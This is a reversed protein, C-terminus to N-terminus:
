LPEFEFASTSPRNEMTPPHLLFTSNETSPPSKSVFQDQFLRNTQHFLTTNSMLNEFSITSANDCSESTTISSIDQGHPESQCTPKSNLQLPGSLVYGFKSEQILPHSNEQSVNGLFRYAADAGLLIDVTFSNDKYDNALPLNRFRPYSKLDTLCYQQLPQVIEDTILVRVNEIGLPTELGIDTVGYSHETVKGGFGHVTLFEHTTPALNLKNAFATRVYSCQSGEDFFIRAMFKKNASSAVTKATKLLITSTVNSTVTTNEHSTTFNESGEDHRQAAFACNSITHQSPSIAAPVSNLM